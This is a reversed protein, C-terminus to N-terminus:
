KTLSYGYIGEKLEYKILNGNFHKDAEQHAQIYVSQTGTAPSFQGRRLSILGGEYAESVEHWILIGKRQDNDRTTKVNVFQKANAHIPDGKDSYELTNGMFAGGGENIKMIGYINNDMQVHLHVTVLKSDIINAIYKEEETVPVGSYTLSGNTKEDISINILQTNMQIIASKRSSLDGHLIISDNRGDPDTFLIPNWHCYHYPSISPYKDALPDVSLWMTMLEHDMYRAGFYGYGTEEDKEKGTFVFPYFRMTQTRNIGDNKHAPHNLRNFANPPTKKIVHVTLSFM